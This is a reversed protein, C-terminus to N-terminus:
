RRSRGHLRGTIFRKSRYLIATRGAETAAIATARQRARGDIAAQKGSFEPTTSGASDLVSIGRVVKEVAQAMRTVEVAM